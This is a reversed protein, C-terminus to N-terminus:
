SRGGGGGLAPSPLAPLLSRGPSLRGAPDFAAKTRRTLEESAAAVRRPQQPRGAHVVGIGVSAVWSGSPGAMGEPLRRLGAPPLSWRQPPLEPPGAVERWAGSRALVAAEAALDEPHGELLVWTAEGDWLIAGPRYLVDRAGFPDAGEARLWCSGAPVPQTRLVVEGLLGLTGLSGVVLRPLDYGSVNKVTPGGGTVVRGDASVYRVQLLADRVPGRGLSALHGEGVALAGGVTGGREPLASRQGAGALAAHLDAVTTGARVRVTMEEPHHEVIGEPARLMRTGRALPGGLEARTGAGAVAVPGESGVEDAFALLEPDLPRRPAAGTAPVRATGTGSM